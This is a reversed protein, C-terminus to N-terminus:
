VEIKSYLPKEAVEKNESAAPDGAPRPQESRSPQSGPSREPRPGDHRGGSAPRPAGSRGRGGGAQAVRPRKSSIVVRRNPEEGISSSKAGEVKAVAAHIIRREYPNMPELTTRKGNRVASRALNIALTELTKERKERYNGSDLVVRLYSGEVRNVVLGTLQQLADLTEGRRGIIVGLGEGKLLLTVTNGGQSPLIQVSQLGMASLVARVYEVAVRTKEEDNPKQNVPLETEAGAAAKVSERRPCEAAANQGPAPAEVPPNKLWVRVKAPINKLGLFGKKPLSLIEYEVDDITVGLQRCAEEIAEVPTKGIQELETM